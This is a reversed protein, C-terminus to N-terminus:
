PAPSYSPSCVCALVACVGWNKSYFNLFMPLCVFGLHSVCVRVFVCWGNQTGGSNIDGSQEDPKGESDSQQDPKGGSDSQQDPKGGNDSPQDPKGGNDSQQDPKGGSDSQQGPKGRNDPQQYPNSHHKTPQGQSRKQLASTFIYLCIPKAQSYTNYM